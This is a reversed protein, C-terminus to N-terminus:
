IINLFLDAVYKCVEGRDYEKIPLKKALIRGTSLGMLSSLLFQTHLRSNSYSANGKQKAYKLFADELFVVLKNQQDGTFEDEFEEVEDMIAHFMLRFERPHEEFTELFNDIVFRISEEPGLGDCEKLRNSDFGVRKVHQLVESFLQQKSKFLRFLTVENVSAFQAIVRTTTAHFGNESFLRIAADFIRQKTDTSSSQSEM